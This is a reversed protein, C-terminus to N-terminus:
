RYTPRGLTGSIELTTTGQRALPIELQQLFPQIVPGVRELAMELDLPEDGRREARAVNGRITADLLPGRVSLEEIVAVHEGGLAISAKIQDFPLALPLGPAALNGDTFQIDVTGEPNGEADLTVDIDGTVTGEMDLGPVLNELPLVDVRVAELRTSAGGRRGLGISGQLGGLPGGDIEIFVRPRGTLWSLTWSPRIFLASLVFPEENPLRIRAGRAQIGVGGWSLTPGIEEIELHVGAWAEARDSIAAALRDYPFSLLVFAGILSIIGVPIAVLRLLRM